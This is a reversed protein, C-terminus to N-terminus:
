DVRTLVYDDSVIFDALQKHGAIIKHEITLIQETFPDNVENGRNRKKRDELTKLWNRSIFVKTDVHKLLSTYTGEAIIVKINDLNIKLIEITNANYDVIPKEIDSKGNIADVLNQEFIDFNVEIHPGLWDSDERRKASNLKPPLFFYDDQGLILSKIGLCLLENSIALATESKGSGSEGAITIVFRSQKDKIQDIISEIIAHAISIHWQQLLVIDGKM